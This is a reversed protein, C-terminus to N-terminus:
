WRRDFTSVTKAIIFARKPAETAERSGVACTLSTSAIHTACLRHQRTLAIKV